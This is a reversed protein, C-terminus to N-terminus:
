NTYKKKWKFNSVVHFCVMKYHIMFSIQTCKNMKSEFFFLNMINFLFHIINAIIRLFIHIAISKENLYSYFVFSMTKSINSQKQWKLSFEIELKLRFYVIESELFPFGQFTRLSKDNKTPTHKNLTKSVFHIHRKLFICLLPSKIACFTNSQKIVKEKKSM